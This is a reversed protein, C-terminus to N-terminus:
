DNPFWEVVTKNKLPKTGDLEGTIHQLAESRRIFARDDSTVYIIDLQQGLSTNFIKNALEQTM